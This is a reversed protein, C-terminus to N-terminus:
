QFIGVVGSAESNKLTRGFELDKLFFFDNHIVLDKKYRVLTQLGRRSQLLEM